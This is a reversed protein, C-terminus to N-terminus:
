KGELKKLYKAPDKEFTPKCYECCFKLEQGEYTMKFPEGMGGLKEDSVLCTELPYPKAPKDPAPKPDEAQLLATTSVLAATALIKLLLSM